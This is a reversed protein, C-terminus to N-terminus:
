FSISVTPNNVSHQPFKFNDVSNEAANNAVEVQALTVMTPATTIDVLMVGELESAMPIRSVIIGIM